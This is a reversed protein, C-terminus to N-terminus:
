TKAKNKNKSECTVSILCYKNEETQSLESVMVGELDMWRTVFPLIEKRISFIRNYIYWMTKIWEGM